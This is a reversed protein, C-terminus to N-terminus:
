IRSFNEGTVTVLDTARSAAAGYTPILSTPFSGEEMQAGFIHIGVGIVGVYTAARAMSDSNGILLYTDAGGSASTIDTLSCRFWGNKCEQINAVAGGGTATVQGTTLNFNAHNVGGAHDVGSTIMQLVNMEGKKAYVSSTWTEGSGVASQDWLLKSNSSTNAIAYKYAGTGGTPDTEGSTAITSDNKTWDAHSFDQSYSLSNTRDMEVLLGKSNGDKDYDFRPSYEAGGEAKVYSSPTTISSNLVIEVQYGFVYFTEGSSSGAGARVQFTDSGSAPFTYSISCRYWDDSIATITLDQPSGDSAAITGNTLNVEARVSATGQDVVGFQVVDTTGKKLYVSIIWKETSTTINDQFIAGNGSTATTALIASTGGLPDSHTPSSSAISTKNWAANSFDESYPILNHPAYAVLGSSNTQTAGSARTHVIDSHLAKRRSFDYDRILADTGAKNPSTLSHNVGLM